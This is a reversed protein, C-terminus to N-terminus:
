RATTTEPEAPRTTAGDPLGASMMLLGTAALERERLAALREAQMALEMVQVDAVMAASGGRTQYGVAAAERTRALNPLATHEIFGIMRDSERVMYLMRALEAAMTLREADVRALAAAHRARAAEIRGAIKARWIPLSMTATPRWMWPAAQVDAMLGATFSPRRDQQAQEEGAVAMAVMARMRALDPNAADIRRWLEDEGPLVTAILPARPWAPDAETPALGLAAKFRVRAAHRREALIALENRVRALENDAQLSAELSGGMGAGAAYDNTAFGRLAERAALEQERLAVAGDVYALEIWARRVGAAVRVVAAIYERHAVESAASAERAMALRKGPLMVDFMLGPMLSMLTSAVDAQFTLQPDPLAGAPRISAVAARWDGYAAFVAPHRAVAYRIYDGPAADAGPVAPAPPGGVSAREARELSGRQAHELRVIGTQCGALGGVPLLVVLLPLSYGSM